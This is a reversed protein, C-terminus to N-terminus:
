QLAKLAADYGQGILEEITTRSFDLAKLGSADNFPKMEIRQTDIKFRGELLRERRRRIGYRNRSHALHEKRSDALFKDIEEKHGNEEALPRLKEIIDLYDTVMEASKEVYRTKDDFILDWMRSWVFNNDPPVPLSEVNRPWLGIIYVKELDPVTGGHSLYWDRHSQILGRLPTNSAFGGDWYMHPASNIDDIVAFNTDAPIAASALVHKKMLGDPYKITIEQNTETGEGITKAPYSAVPYSSETSYSDFIVGNGNEVDIATTLLRPDREPDTKIPFLKFGDERMYNELLNGLASWDDRVLPNFPNLFRNDFKTSTSFLGRNGFLWFQLSSYYRRAAEVSVISGGSLDRWLQWWGSFGPINDVISETAIHKIWFNELENVAKTWSRHKVFEQVLIAGNIAGASSGAVVNFFDSDTNNNKEVARHIIGKVAGVEYAGLAGGGQLVLGVQREKKQL